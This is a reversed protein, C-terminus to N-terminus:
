KVVRRRIIEIIMILTCIISLGFLLGTTIGFFWFSYIENEINAAEAMILSIFGLVLFIGILKLYFYSTRSQKSM